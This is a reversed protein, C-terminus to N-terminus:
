ASSPMRSGRQDRPSPSTYLLCGQTRDTETNVLTDDGAEDDLLSLAAQAAPTGAIYSVSAFSDIPGENDTPSILNLENIILLADLPSVSDNGDVDVYPPSPDDGIPQLVGNADSVQPANLENIVLLADLPSVAVIGEEGSADVDLANLPNQWDAALLRKAELSEVQLSKKSVKSKQKMKKQRRKITM